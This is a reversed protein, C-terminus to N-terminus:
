DDEPADEVRLRIGGITSALLNYFSGAVITMTTAAIVFACVVLLVSFFLAGTVIHFNKEDLLDGVFNEVNDVIGMAVLVEWVLFTMAFLATGICTWFALAMKAISWLTVRAVVAHHITDTDSGPPEFPIVERVPEVRAM